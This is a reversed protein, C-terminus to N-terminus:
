QDVTRHLDEDIDQHLPVRRPTRWLGLERPQQVIHEDDLQEDLRMRAAPMRPNRPSQKGADVAVHPVMPM